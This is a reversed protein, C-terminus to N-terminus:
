VSATGVPPELSWQEVTDDEVWGTMAGDNCSRNKM